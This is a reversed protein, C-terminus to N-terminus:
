LRGDAAKKFTSMKKKKESDDVFTDFTTVEVNFDEEDDISHISTTSLESGLRKLRHQEREIDAINVDFGKIFTGRTGALTRFQTLERRADWNPECGFQPDSTYKFLLYGYRPPGGEQNGVKADDPDAWIPPIELDRKPEEIRTTFYKEIFANQGPEIVALKILLKLVERHDKSALDLEYLGDPKM